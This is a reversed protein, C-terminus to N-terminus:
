PKGTKEITKFYTKFHTLARAIYKKVSHVSVGMEDAIEQYSLGDRRLLIIATRCAHPLQGLIRQLQQETSLQESIDGAWLRGSRGALRDLMESDGSVFQQQEIQTRRNARNVVHWAIKYLYDLPQRLTETPPFRLLQVYIEQVLDEANQASRLQRAFFHRLEAKHQAYVEGLTGNVDAPEPDDQHV